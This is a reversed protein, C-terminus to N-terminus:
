DQAAPFEVAEDPAIPKLAGLDVLRLFTRVLEQAEELTLECGRRAMLEQINQGWVRQPASDEKSM